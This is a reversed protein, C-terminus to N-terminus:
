KSEVWLEVESVHVVDDRLLRLAEIRVVKTAVTAPLDIQSWVREPVGRSLLRDGEKAELLWDYPSGVLYVRATRLKIPQAFTFTMVLPNISNTRVLSERDGDLIKGLEAEISPDNTELRLKSAERAARLDIRALGELEFDGAGVTTADPLTPQDLAVRPPADPPLERVVISGAPLPPASEELPTARRPLDCASVILLPVIVILRGVSM